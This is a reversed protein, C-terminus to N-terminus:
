GLRRVGNAYVSRPSDFRLSKFYYQIPPYKKLKSIGLL